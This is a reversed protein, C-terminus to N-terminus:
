NTQPYTHKQKHTQIHTDTHAGGASGAESELSAIAQLIAARHGFPGVGLEFKLEADTLGLLLPGDICHHLFKKRYQSMGIYEVWDAVDRVDWTRPSRQLLINIKAEGTPRGHPGASAPRSVRRAASYPRPAGVLAGALSGSTLSAGVSAGGASGPRTRPATRPRDAGGGGGGGPVHWTPSVVPSDTAVGNQPRAPIITPTFEDDWSEYLSLGGRASSGARVAAQSSQATPPPRLSIDSGAAVSEEAQVRGGGGQSGKAPRIVIDVNTDESYVSEAMSYTRATHATSYQSRAGRATTHGDRSSAVTEEASDAYSPQQNPQTRTNATTAISRHSAARSVAASKAGGKGAGGGHATNSAVESDSRLLATTSDSDYSAAYSKGAGQQTTVPAAARATHSKTSKLATSHVTSTDDDAFEFDDGYEDGDDGQKSKNSAHTGRFSGATNSSKSLDTSALLAATDGSDSARRSAARSKDFEVSYQVSM